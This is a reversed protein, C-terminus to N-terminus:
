LEGHYHSPSWPNIWYAERGPCEKKCIDPEGKNQLICGNGLLYIFLNSLALVTKKKLSQWASLFGEEYQLLARQVGPV